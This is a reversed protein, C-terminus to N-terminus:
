LQMLRFRVATMQKSRPSAESLGGSWGRSAKEATQCPFLIASGARGPTLMEIEEGKRKNTSVFFFAKPATHHGDTM